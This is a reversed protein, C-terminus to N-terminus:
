RHAFYWHDAEKVYVYGPKHWPRDLYREKMPPLQAKRVDKSARRKARQAKRSDKISVFDVVKGYSMAHYRYVRYHRRLYRRSGM